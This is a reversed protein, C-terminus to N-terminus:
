SSVPMLRTDYEKDGVCFRVSLAGDHEEVKVVGPITRDGAEDQIQVAGIHSRTALTPMGAFSLFEVGNVACASTIIEYREPTGYWCGM